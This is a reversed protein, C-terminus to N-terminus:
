SRPRDSGCFMTAEILKWYARVVSTKSASFGTTMEIERSLSSLGCVASVLMYHFLAPPGPPMQGSAQAAKILHARREILPGLHTDVLWRLRGSDSLSERAIFQHLSPHELTFEFITRYEVRVLEAASLTGHAPVREELIRSIEGFIFRAVEQWLNEKSGFHYLILPQPVGALESIAHTSAAEFGKDAFVDLARDLINRKTDIARQQRRRLPEKSVGAQGLTNQKPDTKSRQSM